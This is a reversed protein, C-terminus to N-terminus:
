NENKRFISIVSKLIDITQDAVNVKPVTIEQLECVRYNLVCQISFESSVVKAYIEKNKADKPIGVIMETDLDDFVINFYWAEKEMLADPKALTKLQSVGFEGNELRDHLAAIGVMLSKAVGSNETESIIREIQSYSIVLQKMTLKLLGSPLSMKEGIADLLNNIGPSLDLVLEKNQGVYLDFLVNEQYNVEGYIVENDKRGNIALEYKIDQESNKQTEFEIEAAYTFEEYALDHIARKLQLKPYFVIFLTVFVVLLVSMIAITAILIRKKM